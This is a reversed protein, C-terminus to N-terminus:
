SKPRTINAEHDYSPVVVQENKGNQLKDIIENQWNKGAGSVIPLNLSYALANAVTTGIRLGTFSGSGTYVGLGKLEKPELKHIALLEQIKPLLEDALKRDALWKLEGAQALDKKILFLEAEPKDTRILLIM